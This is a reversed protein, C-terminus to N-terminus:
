KIFSLDSDINKIEDGCGVVISLIGSFIVISDKICVSEAM